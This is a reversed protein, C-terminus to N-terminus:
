STFWGILISFKFLNMFLYLEKFPKDRTICIGFSWSGDNHKDVKLGFVPKLVCPEAESWIGYDNQIENM